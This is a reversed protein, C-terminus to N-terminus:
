AIAEVREAKGTAPDVVTVTRKKLAKAPPALGNDAIPAKGERICNRLIGRVYSWSRKNNDAAIKLATTWWEQIGRQYLEELVAKIEEAQQASSVLGVVNEFARVGDSIYKSLSSAKEETRKEETRKEQETGPVYKTREEETGEVYEPPAPIESRPEKRRDLGRQNEDFKPFAIWQDGEAEYWVVLGAAAWERIYAEMQAVGIDTRRPFLMSRVVAPDGYTRGQVDAFTVLWTFALRSTDDSLDSIAKNMAIKSNIMRGRAM